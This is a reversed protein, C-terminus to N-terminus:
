PKAGDTQAADAGASPYTWRIIGVPAGLPDALIALDGALVDSDPGLLATGGLGSVTAATKAVDEVRVYGVWSPHSQSNDALQRVGARAYSEKSLVYDLVGDAPEPGHTDYGVLGAYFKAAAAADTALLGFWLWEGQEVQYDLPDGSSSRMVGFPAAEPDSLVAFTGRDVYSRPPLLTKGGHADVASVAAAVDRVSMYYIWRGYERTPDPAARYAVGAVPEGNQYFVGYRHQPEQVVERWEWGFLATYFTRAAEVNSTFYDAWVFKGPLHVNTAPDNLAPLAPVSPTAGYGPGADTLVVLLLAFACVRRM